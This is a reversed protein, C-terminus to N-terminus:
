KSSGKREFFRSVRIKRTKVLFCLNMFNKLWVGGLCVLICVCVCVCSRECACRYPTWWTFWTGFAFDPLLPTAGFVAVFSRRAAAWEGLSAGLLFVYQDGYVNNRYDYGNTRNLAPDIPAGAPIPTPGWAPVFFRPFDMLAFSTQAAVNPAPWHLRSATPALAQTQTYLPTGTAADAVVVTTITPM